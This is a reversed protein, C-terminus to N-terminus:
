TISPMALNMNMISLHSQAEGTWLFVKKNYIISGLGIYVKQLASSTQFDIRAFYPSNNQNRLKSIEKELGLQQEEIQSMSTFTGSLDQGQKYEYFNNGLELRKEEFLRKLDALEIQAKEIKKNIVKITASLHNLEFEEM